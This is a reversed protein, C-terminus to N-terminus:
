PPLYPVEGPEQATVSVQSVPLGPRIWGSLGRHVRAPSWHGAEHMAIHLQRWWVVVGFWAAFAAGWVV